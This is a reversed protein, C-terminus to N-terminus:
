AGRNKQINVSRHIQQSRTDRTPTVTRPYPEIYVDRTLDHNTKAPTKRSLRTNKTENLRLPKVRGSANRRTWRHQRSHCADKLTLHCTLPNIVPFIITKYSWAKGFRSKITEQHMPSMALDERHNREKKGEENKRM